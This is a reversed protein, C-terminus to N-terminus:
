NIFSWYIGIRILLGPMPYNPAALNNGSFGFSGNLVRATNLNEARLYAKFSRIRFHVFANVEPRNNITATDQYFFQGLVPSYNDAKYPTHYRFELGGSFNLNRFGFNGDYSLRNRTYVTPVNLQVSGAKQQLYVESHLNINKTLRFTKLANIRVLNFLASEQRLERFGALYLYNSVLFYDAGFQLRLQPNNIRAFLHITNEKNFTKITDLYFRSRTDFIFSPSRNINQFGLQLSGLKSSLLRQLSAYAHYDGANYGNVFFRAFGLMDWKQNRTRNRYEGHLIFNYLSINNRVEGKLLQYEVGAKFFQHLNKADPFQYISFDNSIEKWQDIFQLTDRPTTITTDYNLAYFLSDEAVRDVFEYRYSGYKFTHEFRLRPYFLPLVITDTVLSDKRGIDYQQRVVMNSETYSNGTFLDFRFFDRGGQDNNPGLKTPIIFRDSYAPLDLYNTDTKIGGSEQSQLKNKLLVVYNNYRKNPSQYWSTVAYNNHYTKQNKYFGPANILRYRVSANWYPKLNQTHLIDIIQEAKSALMYGLETYPRTTNFFRVNELRFKYVDFAHFGPDFGARGKPEFLISRTANGTNGLFVHTAPIPFRSTFDQITSDLTLTRSSDLYSIRLTISDESKDRRRLSDQGGGGSRNGLGSVRDGIGRLPDKQANAQVAILLLIM